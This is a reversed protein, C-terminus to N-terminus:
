KNDEQKPTNIFEFEGRASLRKYRGQGMVQKAQKRNEFTLGTQRHILM